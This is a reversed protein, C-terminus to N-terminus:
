WFCFGTPQGWQSRLSISFHRFGFVVDLGEGVSLEDGLSRTGGSGGEGVVFGEGASDFLEFVLDLRRFALDVEEFHGQAM